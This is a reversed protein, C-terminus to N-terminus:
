RVNVGASNDGFRKYYYFTAEKQDGREVGKPVQYNRYHKESGIEKLRTKEGEPLM